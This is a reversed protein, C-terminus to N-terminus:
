LDGLFFEMVADVATESAQRARARLALIGKDRIIANKNIHPLNYDNEGYHLIVPNGFPGAHAGFSM